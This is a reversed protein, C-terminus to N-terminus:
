TLFGLDEPAVTMKATHGAVKIVAGSNTFHQKSLILIPEPEAALQEKFGTVSPHSM